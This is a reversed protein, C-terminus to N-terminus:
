LCTVGEVGSQLCASTQSELRQQIFGASSPMQESYSELHPLPVGNAETQVFGASSAMNENWSPCSQNSCPEGHIQVFGASSAFGENWTPCEGNSCPGGQTASAVGIFLLATFKM